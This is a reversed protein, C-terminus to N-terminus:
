DCAQQAKSTGTKNRKVTKKQYIPQSLLKLCIKSLMKIKKLKNAGFPIAKDAKIRVLAALTDIERVCVERYSHTNRPCYINM